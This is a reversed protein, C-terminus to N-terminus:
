RRTFAGAIGYGSLLGIVIMALAAGSFHERANNKMDLKEKVIRIKTRLEEASEHLDRRQELARRELNDIPATSM